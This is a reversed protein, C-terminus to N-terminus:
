KFLHKSAYAALPAVTLSFFGCLFITIYVFLLAEEKAVFWWVVSCFVGAVLVAFLHALYARMFPTPYNKNFWTTLKKM